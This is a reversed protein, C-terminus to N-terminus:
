DKIKVRTTLIKTKLNKLLRKITTLSIRCITSVFFLPSLLLKILKGFKTRPYFVSQQIGVGFNTFIMIGRMIKWLFKRESYIQTLPVLVLGLSVLFFVAGELYKLPLDKFEEIRKKINSDGYSSGEESYLYAALENLNSIKYNEDKALFTDIDVFQGFSINNVDVMLYKIGNHEIKPYIDKSDQNFFKFVMQGVSIIEEAPSNLIQERTLSTVEAIMRVYLEQESLIDKLSMITSYSKLTPEKIPYKKGSYQIFQEVM